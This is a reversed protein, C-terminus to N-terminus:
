VQRGSPQEVLLYDDLVESLTTKDVLTCDMFSTALCDNKEAPEEQKMQVLEVGNSFRDKDTRSKIKQTQLYGALHMASAMSITQAVECVGLGFKRGAVRGTEQAVEMGNITATGGTLAGFFLSTVSNFGAKHASIVGGAFSGVSLAAVAAAEGAKVCTLITTAKVIGAAKDAFYGLWSDSSSEANLIKPDISTNYWPGLGETDLVGSDALTCDSV